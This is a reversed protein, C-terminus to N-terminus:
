SIQRNGFWSNKKSNAVYELKRQLTSNILTCLYYTSVVYINTIFYKINTIEWESELSVVSLQRVSLQESIYDLCVGVQKM